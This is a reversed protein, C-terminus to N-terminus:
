WNQDKRLQIASNYYAYMMGMTSFLMPSVPCHVCILSYSTKRTHISCMLQPISIKITFFNKKKKKQMYKGHLKLVLQKWVGSTNQVWNLLASLLHVSSLRKAKFFCLCADGAFTLTPLTIGTYTFKWPSPHHKSCHLSYVLSTAHVHPFTEPFQQLFCLLSKSM